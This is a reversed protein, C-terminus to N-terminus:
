TPRKQIGQILQPGYKRVEGCLVCVFVMITRMDRQLRNWRELTDPIINKHERGNMWAKNTLRQFTGAM